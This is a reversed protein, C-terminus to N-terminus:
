CMTQSLQRGYLDKSTLAGELQSAPAFSVDAIQRLAVRSGNGCVTRGAIAADLGDRRVVHM